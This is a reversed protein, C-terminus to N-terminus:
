LTGLISISFNVYRTTYTGATRAIGLFILQGAICGSSTTFDVDQQRDQNSVTIAQTDLETLTM